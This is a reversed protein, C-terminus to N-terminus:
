YIPAIVERTVNYQDGIGARPESVIRQRRGAEVGGVDRVTERIEADRGPRNVQLGLDAAVIMFERLGLVGRQRGDGVDAREVVGDLRAVDVVEARREGRHHTLER